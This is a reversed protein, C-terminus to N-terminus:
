RVRVVEERKLRKASYDLAALIDQHTLQPYNELIGENTWDSALLQLILDISIRTGRIVPKGRLVKPDFIIRPM